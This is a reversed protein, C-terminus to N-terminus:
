QSQACPSALSQKLRNCLPLARAIRVTGTSGGASFSRPTFIAGTNLVITASNARCSCAIADSTAAVTVAAVAAAVETATVDVLDLAAPTVDFDRAGGASSCPVAGVTFAICAFSLAVAANM